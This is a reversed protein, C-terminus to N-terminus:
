LGQRLSPLKETLGLLDYREKFVHRFIGLATVGAIATSKM